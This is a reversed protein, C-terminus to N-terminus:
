FACSWRCSQARALPLVCAPACMVAAAVTPRVQKHLEEVIQSESSNNAGRVLLVQRGNRDKVRLLMFKFKGWPDVQVGELLAGVWM